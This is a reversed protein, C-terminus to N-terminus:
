FIISRMHQGSIIKNKGTWSRASGSQKTYQYLGGTYPHYVYFNAHPNKVTNGYDYNANVGTLIAKKNKIDYGGYYYGSGGKTGNEGPHGHVNFVLDESKFYGADIGIEAQVSNHETNLYFKVKGDGKFGSLSWEVNSNDSAFKFLNFTDNKNSTVANYSKADPEEALQSLLGKDNIKTSSGTVQTYGYKDKRTAAVQDFDDDTKLALTMRGEENMLYIDKGDPDIANVPSNACYAYPSINYYKEAHPDPINFRMLVPDYARAHYDYFDLGNSRDLEKGNYKYPQIGQDSRRPYEAIQTGSPYYNNVQYTTRGTSNLVLRVSNQRDRVAYYENYNSGIKMISGFDTIIKNLQGNIYVKNDIYDTRTTRLIDGAAPVRQDWVGYALDRNSEKHLTWRKVGSADYHYEIRHGYRFQVSSPLNLYNYQIQCIKKNYDAALKGQTYIYEGTGNYGNKFEMLDSSNQDIVADDVRRLKNGLYESMSLQDITGFTNNDKLGSRVLTKINGHKDYTFKEDYNKTRTALNAGEGYTADTLMGLANYTFTYGRQTNFDPDSKWRQAAINGGFYVKGGTKPNSTYFLEEAFYNGNWKELWGRLNYSLTTSEHKEDKRSLQGLSNYAYSAIESLAAGNFGYKVSTLKMRYKPDYTYGYEETITSQGSTNHEMYKRTIQDMYNYAYYESDKGGLQNTSHKQILNGRADYFFRTVLNTSRDDLWERMATVLGQSSTHEAGYGTRAVYKLHTYSAFTTHNDYYWATTVQVQNAAPFTNWTYNSAGSINVSEKSIISAYKAAMADPTETGNYIGTLVMRGLADYKYFIWHGEPKRAMVMRDAKDYVYQEHSVGPLKKASLRGRSDYLYNYAYEQLAVTPNSGYISYSTNQALADTALPPLVFALRGFDDYIYYTDHGVGSVVQRQLIVRGQKDTFEYSVNSDEDIMRSVYLSNNAYNSAWRIQQPNELVFTKCILQPDPSNSNALYSTRKARSNDRWVKGPGQEATVRNLPSTEYTMETYPYADGYVSVGNSAGNYTGDGKTNYAPLWTKSPRGYVDYEQRTVRDKLSYTYQKEVLENPRGLGDYYQIDDWYQTSSTFTRSMIYNQNTSQAFLSVKFGLLVLVIIVLKYKYM